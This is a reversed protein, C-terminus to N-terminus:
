REERKVMQPDNSLFGYSLKGIVSSLPIAFSIGTKGNVSYFRDELAELIANLKEERVISFIVSRRNDKLGLFEVLDQRATGTGTMCIQLNSGFTQLLDAFFTGKGKQVVTVLLYLKEPAFSIEKRDEM